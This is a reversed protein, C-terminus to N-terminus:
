LPIFPQKMGKKNSPPNPFNQSQARSRGSSSPTSSVNPQQAFLSQLDHDDAPQRQTPMRPLTRSGDYHTGSRQTYHDITELATALDLATVSAPDRWSSVPLPAAPGSETSAHPRRITSSRRSPAASPPRAYEYEDIAALDKTAAMIMEGSSRSGLNSLSPPHSHQQQQQPEADTRADMVRFRGLSSVPVAGPSGQGGKGGPTPTAPASTVSGLTLPLKAQKAKTRQQHKLPPDFDFAWLSAPKTAPAPMTATSM